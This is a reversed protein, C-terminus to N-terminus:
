RGEELDADPKRKGHTFFLILGHVVLIGCIAGSFDILVDTFRPGRNSFIQHIEDSIAYLLTFGSPAAWTVWPRLRKFHHSLFCLFCTVLFGLLAFECFHAAKRVIIHNKQLLLLKSGFGLNKFNPHLLRMVTNTVGQSLDGSEEKGTSSFHFILMMNALVLVALLMAMAVRGSRQWYGKRASGGFFSHNM